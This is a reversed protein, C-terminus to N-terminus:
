YMVPFPRLRGLVRRQQVSLSPVFSCPMRAVEVPWGSAVGAVWPADARRFQFSHVIRHGFPLM